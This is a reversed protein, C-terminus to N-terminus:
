YNSLWVVDPVSQAADWVLSAHQRYHGSYTGAKPQETKNRQDRQPSLKNEMSDYFTKNLLKSFIYFKVISM